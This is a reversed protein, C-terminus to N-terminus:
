MSSISTSFRAGAGKYPSTSSLNLNVQTPDSPNPDIFLPDSTLCKPETRFAMNTSVAGSGNGYAGCYIRIGGIYAVNNHWGWGTNQYAICNIFVPVITNTAAYFGTGGNYTAACHSFASEGDYYFGHGTNKHAICNFFTVGYVSQLIRFGDGQNNIAVCNTFRCYRSNGLFGVDGCSEAYCRAFVSGWGTSGANWSFGNSAASVCHLNYGNFSDVTADNQLIFRRPRWCKINAITIDDASVTFLGYAARSICSVEPVGGDNITNYYGVVTSSFPPLLPGYTDPDYAWIPNSDVRKFYVIGGPTMMGVAHALNTRNEETDGLNNTGYPIDTGAYIVTLPVIKSANPIAADVNLATPYETVKESVNPIAVDVNLATPYSVINLLSNPTDVVIDLVDPFLSISTETTANPIAVDVNLVTPYETVKESVNPIDTQIDLVTPYLVTKGFANPIDAVVDLIDPYLTAPPM